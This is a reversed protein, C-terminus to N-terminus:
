KAASPAQKLVQMLSQRLKPDVACKISWISCVQSIHTCSLSRVIVQVRFTPFYREVQALPKDEGPAVEQTHPIDSNIRSYSIRIKAETREPDLVAM